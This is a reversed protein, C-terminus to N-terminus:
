RSALKRRRLLHQRQLGRLPRRVHRPPAGAALPKRARALDAGGEPHPARSSSSGFGVAQVPPVPAAGAGASLTLFVLAAAVALAALVALQGVIRPAMCASQSWGSIPSHRPALGCIVEVVPGHHADRRALVSPPPSSGCGPAARPASRHPAGPPAALLVALAAAQGARQVRVLDDRGVPQDLGDPALARGRRRRGRQVAVDVLEALEQRGLVRTVCGGPYRAARRARRARCRGSRRAACRRASRREGLSPGLLRGLLQPLREREPVARREGIRGVEGERLFLARPELPEAGLRDLLADLGVERETVVSAEDALEFLENAGLREALPAARLQHEREVARAPLGIRQLDVLVPVPQEDVLEPDRRARLQLLQLLLDERLIGREACGHRAFRHALHRAFRPPGHGHERDPDLGLGVVRFRQTGRGLARVGRNMGRQAAVAPLDLVLM